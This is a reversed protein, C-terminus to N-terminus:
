SPGDSEEACIQAGPETLAQSVFDGRVNEKMELPEREAEM